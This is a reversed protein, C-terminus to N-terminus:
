FRYSIKASVNMPIQRSGFETHYEGGLNQGLIAFMFHRDEWALRSDFTAYPPVRSTNVLPSAVLDVYRATIDFQLHKTLNMVSQMMLQNNPDLAEISASNAIVNINTSTFKKDMFTYGARIKWWDTAIANVSLEVGWYNAKQDNAFIFSTPPNPNTNISRLRDYVNYFTAISLLVREIPRVRYGLEYAVVRESNFDGNPTSLTATREDTEFRSPTRVARSIAGWLTHKQTPTFAMRASPQIEFGTYNNHILKSGVTLELKRPILSVQDQVFVNVLTLAKEAPIFSISPANRVDDDMYRYGVGWLITNRRNLRFRHQVDIDYTNLQDRFFARKLNKWTRDYYAQLVLESHDSYTHVWKATLNQGNQESSTPVEELGGYLNGQVSLTNKASAFYDLRFGGQSMNWQDDASTGTRLRTAGQSFRQGYVRMYLNSDLRAGYRVAFHNELLTGITASAYLGQTERATKSMINIVGNVANAGWLTGGPGSVVEIRDVDQLMMNQVDWFVGGFLPTYVSRGDIMVLLKNSLTNNSLTAGNFGRSAIAWDHSNTKGVHLNSALRLAEPLISATSRRIDDGTIVQIASAVETLKEPAKSVSTVEINMLEEVSLKKLESVAPLITQASVFTGMGFSLCVVAFWFRGQRSGPKRSAVPKKERKLLRVDNRM